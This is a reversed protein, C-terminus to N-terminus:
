LLDFPAAAEADGLRAAALRAEERPLHGLDHEVLTFGCDAAAIVQVPQDDRRAFTTRLSEHRAVLRALVAKLAGHDLAGRLRLAAPMHYAASATPDLQDLFWLRQQAFSLPLATDRDMATIGETPAEAARAAGREKLLRLIAARKLQELSELSKFKDNHENM